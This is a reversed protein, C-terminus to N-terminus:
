YVVFTEYEMNFAATAFENKRIPKVQRLLLQFYTDLPILGRNYTGPKFILTLM